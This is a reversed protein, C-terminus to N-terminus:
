ATARELAASLEALAASVQGVPVDLAAELRRHAEDFPRASAAHARRGAANLRLLYARRDSPDPTRSVHGRRQMLRVYDAFTTLPMGLAAALQTQTAPQYENVASYVAYQDPTLPADAMASALLTKLQQSVVYVDFALSFGGTAVAPAAPRVAPTTAM